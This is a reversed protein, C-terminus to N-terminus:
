KTYYLSFYYIFFLVKNPYAYNNILKIQNLKNNDRFYM